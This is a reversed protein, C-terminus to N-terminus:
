REQVYQANRSMQGDLAAVQGARSPAAARSSEGAHFLAVADRVERDERRGADDPQKGNSTSFLRSGTSSGLARYTPAANSPRATPSM